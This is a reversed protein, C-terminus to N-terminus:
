LTLTPMDHKGALAAALWSNTYRSSGLSAVCCDIAAEYENIVFPHHHAVFIVPTDFKTWGFMMNRAITGHVRIINTGYQVSAGISCIIYDFTKDRAAKFLSRCGPDVWETVQGFNKGLEQTFHTLLDKHIDYDNYIVAHLVNKEQPNTLPLTQHRDRLIGVSKATIREALAPLGYTEADVEAPSITDSVTHELWGMHEKMSINRAARNRLTEETLKGEEVCRLMQKMFADDVLPFLLMDGGAELFRACADYYNMFGCFGSMEVADSVILGDFGMENKLLDTLLRHSLTAPPCLGLEPDPEDFAPLSIHGPMIAKIGKDILHQFVQGPGAYWAEQSLPNAVTTLHQDLTGFGDGPFHKATAILGNSQMGEAFAWTADKTRTPDTGASRLSAMPSDTDGILDVCPALSWNYGQKCAVQGTVEGIERTLAPDNAAGYSMMSGFSLTDDEMLCRMGSEIDAMIFPPIDSVKAHEALAKALHERASQHFFLGGYAIMPQDAVHAYAPTCVQLILESIDLSDTLKQARPTITLQFRQHSM